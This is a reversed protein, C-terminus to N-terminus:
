GFRETLEGRGGAAKLVVAFGRYDHQGASGSREAGSKVEPIGLAPRAAGHIYARQPPMQLKSRPQGLCPILHLLDSDAGDFPETYTAANRQRHREIKPHHRTVRM